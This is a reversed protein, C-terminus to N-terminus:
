HFEVILAIWFCLSLTFHQSGSSTHILHLCFSSFPSYFIVPIEKECLIMSASTSSDHYFVETLKQCSPPGFWLLTQNLHCLVFHAGRDTHNCSSRHCVVTESRCCVFCIIWTLIEGIEHENRLCLLILIILSM